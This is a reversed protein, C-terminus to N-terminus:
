SFSKCNTKFTNSSWIGPKLLYQTVGFASQCAAQGRGAAVQISGSNALDVVKPV